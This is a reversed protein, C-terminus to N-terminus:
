VDDVDCNLVNFVVAISIWPMLIMFFFSVLLFSCETYYVLYCMASLTTSCISVGLFENDVSAFGLNVISNRATVIQEVVKEATNNIYYWQWVCSNIIYWYSQIFGEISKYKCNGMTSWRTNNYSVEFVACSTITWYTKWQLIGWILFSRTTSCSSCIDTLIVWFNVISYYCSIQLKSDTCYKWIIKIFTL